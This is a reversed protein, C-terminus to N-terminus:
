ACVNLIALVYLVFYSHEISGACSDMYGRKLFISCSSLLLSSSSQHGLFFNNADVEKKVQNYDASNKHHDGTSKNKVM